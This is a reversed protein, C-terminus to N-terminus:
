RRNMNELAKDALRTEVDSLKRDQAEPMLPHREGAWSSYISALLIGEISIPHEHGGVAAALRTGPDKLLQGALRLAEDLDDLVTQRYPAHLEHRFDYEAEGRHEILV